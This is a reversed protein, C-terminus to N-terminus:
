QNSDNLGEWVEGYSPIASAVEESTALRIKVVGKELDHDTISLRSAVGDEGVAMTLVYGYAGTSFYEPSSWVKAMGSKYPNWGFEIVVVRGAFEAVDEINKIEKM